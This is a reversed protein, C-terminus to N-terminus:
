KYKWVNWPKRKGYNLEFIKYEIGKNQMQCNKTISKNEFIRYENSRKIIEFM